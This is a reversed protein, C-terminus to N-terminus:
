SLLKIAADIHLKAQRLAEVVEPRAYSVVAGMEGRAKCRGVIDSVDMLTCRVDDNTSPMLARAAHALSETPTAKKAM